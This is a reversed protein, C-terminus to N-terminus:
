RTRWDGTAVFAAWFFPDDSQGAARREHIVKLMSRQMAEAVQETEPAFLQGIMAAAAQDDVSWLTSIVSQAGAMEFARRLGFIGEGSRVVGMGTECASLIVLQVGQLNLGAIEEATVIGDEAGQDVAGQGMLNSGALFIGSQLLPSEGFYGSSGPRSRCEDSIYYGHTAVHIVRKGHSNRKLNEESSQNDFFTLVPEQRFSRWQDALREVELRTGPLKSVQRDRLARCGSTVNRPTIGAIATQLGAFLRGPASKGIRASPAANFDPDGLALLGNGRPATSVPSLLDRGSLIYHFAYQEILYSGDGSSLGAFSVLSLAGDPALFIFNVNSLASSLPEWILRYLEQVAAAYEPGSWEGNAPNMFRRRYRAVASDVDVARGLEHVSLRGNSRIVVALYRGETSDLSAHHEYRMFDVLASQPPLKAVVRAPDIDAVLNESRLEASRKALDVEFQEKHQTARALDTEYAWTREAQPGEVYMRSLRQRAQNLSDVLAAIASVSRHRLFVGDSVQGKTSLIVRVIEKRNSTSGDPSDLLISLYNSAEDQFFRSYELANREALRAFGESFNKRRITFARSEQQRAALFNGAHRAVMALGFLTRAEVPHTKGVTRELITLARQYAADAESFREQRQLLDGLNNLIEAVEPHDAGQAKEGIALSRRILPEALDYQGQDSYLRALNSLTAAVKPHEMGQTREEITLAQQYLPEAEAYNGMDHYMYGLNNMAQAVDPHEPGYANSLIDMARRYLPEEDAYRGLMHYLAALNNLGIAIKPDSDGLNRETIDLARQYDAEAEGYYAQVLLLNALNNLSAAVDLHDPGLTRERIDLTKRYLAEAESYRGQAKYLVALNNLVRATVISNAGSTKERIDRARNWVQEASVYDALRYHCKGLAELLMAVTSDAAGYQVEALSVAQTLLAASETHQGLQSLSDAQTQLSEWDQGAALRVVVLGISMLIGFCRMALRGTEICSTKSQSSPLYAILLGSIARRVTRPM